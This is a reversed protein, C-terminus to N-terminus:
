KISRTSTSSINEDNITSPIIKDSTVVPVGSQIMEKKLKPDHEFPLATFTKYSLAVEGSETKLKYTSNDTVPVIDNLDHGAWAANELLSLYKNKVHEIEHPNDSEFLFLINGKDDNFEISNKSENVIHKGLNISFSSNDLAIMEKNELEGILTEGWRRPNVEQIGLVCTDIDSDGIMDHVAYFVELNDENFYHTALIQGNPSSERDSKNKYYTDAKKVAGSKRAREDLDKIQYSALM